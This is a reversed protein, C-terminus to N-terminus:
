DGVGEALVDEFRDDGDQGSALMYTSETAFFVQYLRCVVRSQEFVLPFAKVQGAGALVQEIWAFVQPVQEIEM